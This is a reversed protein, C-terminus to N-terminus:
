RPGDEIRKRTAQRRTQSCLNLEGDLYGFRFAIMIFSHQRRDNPAAGVKLLISRLDTANM